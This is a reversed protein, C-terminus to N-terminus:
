CLLFYWGSPLGAEFGFLMRIVFRIAKVVPSRSHSNIKMLLIEDKGVM